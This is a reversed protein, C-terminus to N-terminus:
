KSLKALRRLFVGGAFGILAILLTFVALMFISLYTNPHITDPLGLLHKLLHASPLVVWAAAAAFAGRWSWLLGAAATGLGLLAVIVIPSVEGQFAANDIFAILAGAGLGAAMLIVAGMRNNKSNMAQNGINM